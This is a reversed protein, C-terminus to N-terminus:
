SVKSEEALNMNKLQMTQTHYESATVKLEQVKRSLDANISQYAECRSQLYELDMGECDKPGSM